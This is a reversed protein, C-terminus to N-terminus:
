RLARLGSALGTAVAVVAFGLGIWTQGMSWWAITVGVYALLEIAARLFPHVRLVPRPSLLLAWVVLLVVPTGIGLVANWPFPWEAFGWLALSVVAVVLIVARVIELPTIQPRQVGPVDAPTESM